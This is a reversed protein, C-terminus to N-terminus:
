GQSARGDVRFGGRKASANFRRWTRYLQYRGLKTTVCEWFRVFNREATYWEALIEWARENEPCYTLFPKAWRARRHLHYERKAMMTTLDALWKQFERKRVRAAAPKPRPLALGQQGALRRMSTSWKCRHCYCVGKQEDIAVTGYTHGQCFPCDGRRGRIRVGIQELLRIFLSM